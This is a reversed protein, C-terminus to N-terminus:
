IQVGRAVMGFKDARANNMKSFGGPAIPRSYSQVRDLNEKICTTM